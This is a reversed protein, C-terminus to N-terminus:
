AADTETGVSVGESTVCLGLIYARVAAAPTDIAKTRPVIVPEVEGFLSDSEWGFCEGMDDGGQLRFTAVEGKWLDRGKYREAVRTAGVFECECRFTCFILSSLRRVVDSKMIDREM